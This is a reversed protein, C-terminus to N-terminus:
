FDFGIGFAFRGNRQTLREQENNLFYSFNVIIFDVPAVWIGGGYSLHWKDSNEGKVWVRGYDFSGKIGLTFPLIKNVSSTLKLRVDTNQYVASNGYFRNARFGRLLTNGGLNTKGGLTAAHFFPFDGLRHEAGIKSALVLNARKDINQYITLGAGLIGFDRESNKLDTLWSANATFAVGKTPIQLNDVSIIDLGVKVGGYFQNKFVEDSLGTVTEGANIFRDPTREIESTELLPGVTFGNGFATIPLKFAPYLHLQSQRVRNFSINNNADNLVTENGFGFYNFTTQNTQLRADILLNGKGLLQNFDGLYSLNIGNTGFSYNASLKHIAAYPTRKFKYTTTITTLGLFFGDDPNVGLTPLPITYDYEYHFHRRDYINKDRNNSAKNKAEKGLEYINEDLNDYVLTKKSIGSVKSKDVFKDKGLGGILRILIGKKVEGNVIFEDDNGIGYIDIEKTVSRQFTRDFVLRNGEKKKHYVRVRTNENDLRDILFLEDKETGYVDIRKYLLKYQMKAFKVLNARRKKLITKIEEATLDQALQPWEQFAKEIIEDTLHTQIYKAEREWNEWDMEGLFSNDVYRPSWSSWKMNKIDSQYVKLQRLFPMFARAVQIMVGDYKSFPQDRDRPVARYITSDKNVKIRAWRWQDGHRDWDGIVQDFLRSRLLWAQDVKHKHNHVLKEAMDLTSVLKKSNGLSAEKEWNGGAREEILYVQGGFLDNHVGLRPQKPIYFLKPNTHYVDVANALDPIALAAFPHSSLFTEQVISGAVTMKNFPYPVTRSADKTLARMVYQQGDAAELRLSNTQNGGGRKVATMGGKYTALDLVPFEYTKSYINRYHQGLWFYYWPGKEVVKNTVTPTIKSTLKQDYEEFKQPINEESIELKDKIKKRYLLKGDSSGDAEWFKLWASGDEYFDIQSFGLKAAAFESGTSAASSTTATGSGNIIVHQRDKFIYQMNQEHAATFIYSGNKKAGYLIDDVLLKYNRHALDSKNGITTRYLAAVSGILPLPVQVKKNGNNIPFLHDKATFFGGHPGYSFIPHHMAVVVNKNRNKRLIEELHFRFEKRSKFECGDNIEPEKDWDELYWQSDIVIVVLQDNLQIVEPGGCGNEPFFHRDWDEDDESDNLQKEIYKAQRKVGKLGYKQWDDAGPLFMVKGKFGELMKLQKNLQGEANKRKKKHGKGPMGNPHINSGLFIVSSSEDAVSLKSQLLNLAPHNSNLEESGANGIMFMTHKVKGNPTRQNNNSWNKTDPNYNVKYNACSSVLLVALMFLLYNRM